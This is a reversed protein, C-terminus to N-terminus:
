ASTAMRVTGQFIARFDQIMIADEISHFDTRKESPLWFLFARTHISRRNKLLELLSDCDM